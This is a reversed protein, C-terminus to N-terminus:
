GICSSSTNQNATGTNASWSNGPPTVGGDCGANEDDLDYTKDGAVTNEAVDV